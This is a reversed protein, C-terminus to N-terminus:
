FYLSYQKLICIYLLVIFYSLFVFVGFNSSQNGRIHPLWILDKKLIWLILSPSCFCESTIIMNQQKLQISYLCTSSTM